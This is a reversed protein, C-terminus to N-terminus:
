MRNNQPQIIHYQMNIQIEKEKEVTSVLIQTWIKLPNETLEKNVTLKKSCMKNDLFGFIDQFFCIFVYVNDQIYLLKNDTM